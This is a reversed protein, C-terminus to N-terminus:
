HKFPNYGEWEGSHWSGLHFFIRAALLKFSHVSNISFSVDWPKAIM